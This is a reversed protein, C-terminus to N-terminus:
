SKLDRMVPELIEDVSLVRPILKQQVAYHIVLSLPKRVAELGIPLPDPDTPAGAVKKSEVLMRLIERVVYPKTQAIEKRIVFFHNAPVCGHTAVWEKATEHPSSILPKIWDETNLNGGIIAADIKGEFLMELVSTNASILQANPPDQYESLHGRELTVWNVRDMDVGYDNQLIGRVWVGTTVSFARVGVRKGPLDSPTLKGRAANYVLTHHHTRGAIVAPLLAFPRGYVHAQLWTAIALEGADYQQGDILKKFSKSATKVPAFEFEVYPSVTEGRKIAATNPYDALLTRLREPKSAVPM